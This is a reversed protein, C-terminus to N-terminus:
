QAHPAPGAFASRIEPPLALVTQKLLADAAGHNGEAMLISAASLQAGAERWQLHAPELRALPTAALTRSRVQNLFAELRRGVFLPTQGRPSGAHSRPGLIELWPENERNRRARAFQEEKADLPGALFMWFGAPHVLSPNAEDTKLERLRREVVAPDLPTADFQGILAVAPETPAFDGRWLTTHPFVDLFTAAVINFEEESLQFMPLWQCFLGGPALARRAAAFHDSTYLSAEGRHWPVFLDGVIVDFQRVSGSLFNRADEAIVEVRPSGVVSLNAGAFHDRAAAIVELVIEIATIREVPHLLAAGATIGTGLGLFAVRKPSPHLLLPLHAQLREDGTSATGGLVYSNNLKIRRSDGSEVIAVIGHSSEKLALLKEGQDASLATRPLRAPHCLFLGGGVLAWTALRGPSYRGRRSVTGLCFAGAVMLALGVFVLSAWLGLWGPLLFAAVLSGFIAGATNVGLLWGLVRGSPKDSAQGAMEMLLPLAMGALLTPVLVTPLALRLIQMGFSTWGGTGVLCSLGNTFSYFLRPTAFVVAGGAIWAIGLLRRPLFGLRLFERAIAAGGALGVLLVAVVVSFSYISNEHVQAFMRSWVVQLIFFLAGSLAALGALVRRSFADPAVPKLPFDKAAPATPVLRREGPDLRWATLGILLSGAICTGYSARASLNPLWFFPVSFAGVAAGLTNAAYLGGASIGLRRRGAAFAQGLLPVTGGMCFTPLFLAAIALMTKVAAFGAPSGALAQYLHPYLHDYLRLLPEVLFAGLGAGLELLGYARLPRLSRVACSGIVLSGVTFGLFVAALTAAVAPTTAGFVAAFRRMWLVEYVLALAGSFFLLAHLAFGLWAPGDAAPPVAVTKPKRAAKM